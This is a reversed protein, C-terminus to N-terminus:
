IIYGKFVLIYIICLIAAVSIYLLSHSIVKHTRMNEDLNPESQISRWGVYGSIMSIGLWLYINIFIFDTNIFFDLFFILQLIVLLVLIVRRM